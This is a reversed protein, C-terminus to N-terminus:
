EEGKNMALQDVVFRYVVDGRGDDIMRIPAWYGLGPNPTIFWLWAKDYNGDFFGKILPWIIDVDTTGSM